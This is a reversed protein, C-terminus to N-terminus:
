SSGFWQHPQGTIAAICEFDHDRHLLTLGRLEATAAVVLDIPGASRHQGRKTLEGQVEWARSYARDDVPEWGFVERMDDIARTRDAFSRATYFFELEIIPCVAILGAAAAAHWAAAGPDRRMLPVLASTDILFEAASM